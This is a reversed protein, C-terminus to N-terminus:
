LRFSFKSAERATEAADGMIKHIRRLLMWAEDDLYDSVHTIEQVYEYLKNAKRLLLKYRDDVAILDAQGLLRISDLLSKVQLREERCDAQHEALRNANIFFEAM